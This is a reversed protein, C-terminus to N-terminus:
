LCACLVAAECLMVCRSKVGACLGDGLWALCAKDTLGCGCLDVWKSVWVCACVVHLCARVREQRRRM